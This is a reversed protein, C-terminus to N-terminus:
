VLWLVGGCRKPRVLWMGRGLENVEAAVGGFALLYTCYCCGADGDDLCSAIEGASGNYISTEM